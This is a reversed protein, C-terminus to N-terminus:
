LSLRIYCFIGKAALSYCLNHGTLFAFNREVALFVAKNEIKVGVFNGFTLTRGEGFGLFRKKQLWVDGM